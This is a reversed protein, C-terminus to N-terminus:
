IEEVGAGVPRSRVTSTRSGTRSRRLSFGSESGTASNHDNASGTLDIEMSDKRGDPATSVVQIRTPVRFGEGVSEYDGLQAVAVVKGRRDFYEIKHVCTIARMSTCASSWTARRTAVPSSITPDRTRWGGCPRMPRATRSPSIGFAELVVRPSMMLGEFDRVEEWEGLYYSSIEKPSLALWFEQDNSGIIVARQDVAISGQIYVEAPPNFRLQLLLNHREPKKKDPVHYTLMAQGNARLPVAAEARAALTQLAEEVTAKGPCVALRQPETVCGGILM